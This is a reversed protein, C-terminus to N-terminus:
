NVGTAPLSAGKRDFRMLWTTPRAHRPRTSHTRFGPPPATFRCTLAHAADNQLDTPTHRRLNSDQVQWV